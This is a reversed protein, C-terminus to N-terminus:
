QNVFRGYTQLLKDAMVEISFQKIVNERGKSALSVLKEKDKLLTDIEKALTEPTNPSYIVGGGTETVIEAFAAIDPQVVPVGSANAELIYLGFAEGDLVPVSLLTLTSIFLRREEDSVADVFEVDLMVDAKSFSQKLNDVFPFDPKIMGGAIKL